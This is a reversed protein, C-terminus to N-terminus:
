RSQDEAFQRRDFVGDAPVQCSLGLADKSAPADAPSSLGAARRYGEGLAYQAHFSEKASGLASEELEYRGLFARLARRHPSGGLNARLPTAHGNLVRGCSTATLHM